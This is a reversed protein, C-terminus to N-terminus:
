YGVRWFGTFGVELTWLCSTCIYNFNVDAQEFVANMCTHVYSAKSM